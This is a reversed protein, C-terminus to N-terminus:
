LSPRVVPFTCSFSRAVASLWNSKVENTKWHKKKPQFRFPPKVIRVRFNFSKKVKRVKLTCKGKGESKVQVKSGLQKREVNLTKINKSPSPLVLEISTSQTLQTRSTSPSSINGHSCSLSLESTSMTNFFSNVM